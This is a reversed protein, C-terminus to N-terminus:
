QVHDAAESLFVVYNGSPHFIANGNNRQAIGAKGDTLSRVNSGSRDMLYVDFFSDANVRDFVITNGDPSFRPRAGAQQLVKMTKVAPNRPACAGANCFQVDGGAQGFLPFMVLTLSMLSRIM